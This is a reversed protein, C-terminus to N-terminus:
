LNEIIHDLEYDKAWRINPNNAQQTTFRLRSAGKGAQEVPVLYHKNNYTTYFMDIDEKSYYNDTMSRINTTKTKFEIYTNDDSISSSKCQIRFLKGNLDMIYDYRAAGIPKSVMINREICAKEFELETLLGKIASEVM